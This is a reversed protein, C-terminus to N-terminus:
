QNCYWIVSGTAAVLVFSIVVVQISVFYSASGSPTAITTLTGLLMFLIGLSLMIWFEQVKGCMYGWFTSDADEKTPPTYEDSM